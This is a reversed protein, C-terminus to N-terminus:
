STGLEPIDNGESSFETRSIASVGALAGAPSTRGAMGRSVTALGLAAPWSHPPSQQEEWSLGLSRNQNPAPGMTQHSLSAGGPGTTVEVTGARMAPEGGVVVM